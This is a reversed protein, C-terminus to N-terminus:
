AGLMSKALMGVRRVAAEIATGHPQGCSLRLGDGFREGNSFMSGPALKIGQALAADFLREAALGGPLQIWLLMGGEPLNCRTGAPFHVAVAEAMQHRQRQLAERLRRLHRPWGSGALFDAAVLQPLEEGYRSQAYKLMEIRAQWRGPLMWGLRLGPALVKNLSGCHIVHGSRDFAKVPRIPTDTDGMEGYIDDEVLAVDHESCLAALRQKHADPMTCGLPNHLTPMAVVAKIRQGGPAGERLVFELADLSLGTAPSTPMELARLGLSELVQLVGYFTPSEIAVTDGPRTVARLALNVAELCGHTVVVEEPAAQVGRALAHRALAQRLAPHGHRRAMTTLVAPTRRLHGQMSRQLATTPYLAPAGVALALNVQVEARQGRELISSVREHIGVYAAADPRVAEPEHAPPLRARRASRVYYGSRPRAELWGQDELHRCAQLATSLSVGHDNMLRRVSPLRDGSRLTGARIAGLYHEALQRYLPTMLPATVPAM